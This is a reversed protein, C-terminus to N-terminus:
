RARPGSAAGGVPGEAGLAMTDRMQPWLSRLQEAQADPVQFLLLVDKDAQPGYFVRAFNHVKLEKGTEKDIDTWEVDVFGESASDSIIGAGEPYAYGRINKLFDKPLKGALVMPKPEGKQGLLKFLAATAKKDPDSKDGWQRGDLKPDRTPLLFNFLRPEEPGTPRVVRYGAEEQGGLLKEKARAQGPQLAVASAAAIPPLLLERRRWPASARLPPLPQPPVATGTPWLCGLLATTVMGFLPRLWTRRRRGGASASM